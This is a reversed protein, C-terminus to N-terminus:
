CKPPHKLDRKRKIQTAAVAVCFLMLALANPLLADGAFGTQEDNLSTSYTATSNLAAVSARDATSEPQAFTIKTYETVKSEGDRWRFGIANGTTNVVLSIIGTGIGTTGNVRSDQAHPSRTSDIVAVLIENSHKLDAVPNTRVIMIHGTDDSDSNPSKLWAIVSGPLLDSPRAIGRWGGGVNGSGLGAFYYYYDQARARGFPNALFKIAALDDPLTQQLVYNVFGSCDFDYVGRNEDVHAAHRYNSSKVTSLIHEAENLLVLRGLRVSSDALVLSQSSVVNGAILGCLLFGAIGWRLHGRVLFGHFM